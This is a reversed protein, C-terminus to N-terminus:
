LHGFWLLQHWQRTRPHRTMKRFSVTSIEAPSIDAELTWQVKEQLCCTQGGPDSLWRWHPVQLSVASHAFGQGSHEGGKCSPNGDKVPSSPVLLEATRPECDCHPASTDGWQGQSLFLALQIGCGEKEQSLVVGSSGRTGTWRMLGARELLRGQRGSLPGEQRQRRCVEHAGALQPTKTTHRKEWGM